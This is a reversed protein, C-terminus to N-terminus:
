QSFLFQRRWSTPQLWAYVNDSVLRSRDDGWVIKSSSVMNAQALMSGTTTTGNRKPFVAPDGMVKYGLSNKHLFVFYNTDPHDHHYERCTARLRIHKGTYNRYKGQVIFFDFTSWQEETISSSAYSLSPLLALCVLVSIFFIKVLKIDFM